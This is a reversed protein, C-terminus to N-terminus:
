KYTKITKYGDKDFFDQYKELIRIKRNTFGFDIYCIKDLYNQFLKRIRTWNFYKILINHDHIINNFNILKVETNYNMRIVLPKLITKLVLIIMISLGSLSRYTKINIPIKNLKIESINTPFILHMIKEFFIQYNEKISEYKFIFLNKEGYFKEINKILKKFQTQKISLKPLKGKEFSNFSNVELDGDYEFPRTTNLDTGDEAYLLLIKGNEHM